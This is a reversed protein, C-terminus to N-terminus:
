TKERELKYTLEGNKYLKLRDGSATPSDVFLDDIYVIAIPSDAIWLEIRNEDEKHVKLKIKM